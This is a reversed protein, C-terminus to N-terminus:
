TLGKLEWVWHGEKGTGGVRRPKDCTRERATRIRKQSLGAAAAADMIEKVPKPGEGLLEKLFEVAEDAVRASQESGRALLGDATITSTGTWGFKGDEISYGVPEALPGLNAKVHVLARVEPKGPQAGALIASRVTAIFDISGISRYIAKGGSKNLHRVTLIACQQQEAIRALATMSHRVKSQTNNLFAAIPDIAVFRVATDRIMEELRTLGKEDFRFVDDTVFVRNLDAGLTELRPRVTSGPHDEGTLLLSSAPVCAAESGPVLGRSLDAAVSQVVYSKGVGPDGSLDTIHGLPIWPPWVWEIDCPEIDSARRYEADDSM